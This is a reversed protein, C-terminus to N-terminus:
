GDTVFSVTIIYLRIATFSALVSFLLVGGSWLDSWKSINKDELTSYFKGTMFFLLLILFFTLNNFWKFEEPLIVSPDSLIDKIKTFVYISIMVPLLCGFNPLFNAVQKFKSEKKKKYIDKLNKKLGYTYHFGAVITTILSLALWIYVGLMGENSKYFVTAGYMIVTIILFIKFLQIMRIGIQSTFDKKGGGGGGGGGSGGSAASGATGIAVGGGTNSVNKMSSM